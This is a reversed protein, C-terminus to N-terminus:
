SDVVRGVLWSDFHRLGLLACASPAPASTPYGEEVLWASGVGSLSKGEAVECIKLRELEVGERACIRQLKNWECSSIGNDIITIDLFHLDEATDLLSRLAVGLAKAYNDDCIFVVSITQSVEAPPLLVPDFHSHFCMTYGAMMAVGSLTMASALATIESTDRMLATMLSAVLSLFRLGDQSQKDSKFSSNRLGCWWDWRHFVHICKGRFIPCLLHGLEVSNKYLCGLAAATAKQVCTLNCGADRNLVSDYIELAFECAWLAGIATASPSNTSHLLSCSVNCSGILADVLVFATVEWVNPWSIFRHEPYFDMLLSDGNAWGYFHAPSPAGDFPESWWPHIAQAHPASFLPLKFHRATRLCFDIDEGGGTKPFRLDFRQYSRRTVLNATVGWPPVNSLESVGWFYTLYSDAAFVTHPNPLTTLGVLGCCEEGYTVIKEAYRFLIDSSPKVDDDLFLVWDASSEDLGRNRSFSAGRNTDNVRVRVRDEYSDELIKRIEGHAPNDVIIVFQTSCNEPVALECIARLYDENVRYSPTVVDLILKKPVCSGTRQLYSSIEDVGSQLVKYKWDVHVAEYRPTSDGGICNTVHVSRAFRSAGFRRYIEWLWPDADQNVFVDPFIQGRFVQM